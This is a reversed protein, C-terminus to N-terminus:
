EAKIVISLGMGGGVCLTALGIEKKKDQLLHLLTTVIRAGSAGIPHGLAIAGGRMNVRAMDFGLERVVCAAQAAFAENAEVIDFDSVSMHLRQMVKKTSAIPGVGMIEPEVGEAAFGVISALPKVGLEEAKERSAIVLAAAGDNIGSANGATVTGNKKFAPKLKALSEMTVGEKPYEDTDVLTVNGKRDQVEVPVIERKFEGNKRAACAKRQSECALADQMDRTIGFREAVNEATMGMHMDNFADWLGDKIMVDVLKTDGMRAGWRANPVIYPANSMSETGGVLMVDTDDCMISMAGLIISKMGSGCVQNVTMAPSTIALGSYKGIQRAVNQGVGAQLVCGFILQDIQSPRLGSDAIAAKAAVVGLEAATKSKLAGGFSGIPTRKASLIVVDKKMM